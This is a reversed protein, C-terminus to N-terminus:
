RANSPGIVTPPRVGYFAYCPRIRFARYIQSSVM